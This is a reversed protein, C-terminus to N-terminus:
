LTARSISREQGRGLGPGLVVADAREAAELLQEAAEALLGGDEDALPITMVETLKQEFVLQAVLPRGRAGLGAGARMAAECTM